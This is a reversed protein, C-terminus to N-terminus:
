CCCETGCCFELRCSTRVERAWCCNDKEETVHLNWFNIQVVKMLGVDLPWWVKDLSKLESSHVIPGITYRWSNGDYFDLLARYVFNSYIIGKDNIKYSVSEPITFNPCENYLVQHCKFDIWQNNYCFYTNVKGQLYTGCLYTRGEHVCKCGEAVLILLFLCWLM